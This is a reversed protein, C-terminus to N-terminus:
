STTRFQCIKPTKRTIGIMKPKNGGKISKIIGGSAADTKVLRNLPKKRM